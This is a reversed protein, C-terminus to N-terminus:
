YRIKRELSSPDRKIFLLKHIIYYQQIHTIEVIGRCLNTSQNRKQRGLLEKRIFLVGIIIARDQNLLNGYIHYIGGVEASLSLKIELGIRWHTSHFQIIYLLLYYVVENERGRGSGIGLLQKSEQEARRIGFQSIERERSISGGGGNM